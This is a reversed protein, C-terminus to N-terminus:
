LGIEAVAARLGAALFSQDSMLTVFHYGWEAYRRAHGPTAAYIGAIKGAARARSAILPLAERNEASDVDLTADPSLAISLDSPGVFVGDIGPLGLIGDLADLARRTEIMAIALTAADATRRYSVATGGALQVARTPGWSRSGNPPYKMFSAFLAADAVTEIMPAVVADAGADLLRSATQNEGVPIRVVVGGGVSKIASILRLAARLDVQGHQMDVLVAPLGARAMAEGVLPEPLSSWGFVLPPGARLRDALAETM